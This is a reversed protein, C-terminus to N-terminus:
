VVKKWQIPKEGMKKLLANVRSFVRSGLFGRYASLPSPHASEIIEHRSLDLRTKVKQAPGGWLVFVVPKSRQNLCTIIEDTVKEWGLGRHSFAKGAEVTLVTNLLLVGQSVWGTLDSEEKSLKMELDTELEKFINKLSPPKKKLENPVAFSLGMAQGPGHYPDQGLIVVKVQSLDLRRIADFVHERAPYIVKGKKYESQLTRTLKQYEVSDFVSRLCKSWGRPLAEEGFLTKM